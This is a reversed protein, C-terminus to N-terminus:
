RPRHAAAGIPARTIAPARTPNIWACIHLGREKLRQLMGGSRPLAAIGNWISGTSSACGSVISTFSTCRCSRDAMSSDGTVTQEDVEHHLVHKAMLRIILAPLRTTRDFGHVKGVGRQHRVTIVFYELTQGAVSFQVREVKESAVEFSVQEPHHCSAM